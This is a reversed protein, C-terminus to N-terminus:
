IEQDCNDRAFIGTVGAARKKQKSCLLYRLFQEYHGGEGCSRCILEAVSAKNQQIVTAAAEKVAM